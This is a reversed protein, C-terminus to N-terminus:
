KHFASFIYKYCTQVFRDKPAQYQFQELEKTLTAAFERDAPSLLRGGADFMRDLRDM